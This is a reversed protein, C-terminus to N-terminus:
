KTKDASLFQKEMKENKGKICFICLKICLLKKDSKENKKRTFSRIIQIHTTKGKFQFLPIEIKWRSLGKTM